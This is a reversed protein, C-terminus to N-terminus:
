RLIFLSEQPLTKVLHFEERCQSAEQKLLLVTDYADTIQIRNTNTNSCTMYSIVSHM